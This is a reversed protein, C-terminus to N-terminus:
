DMHWIFPTMGNAAKYSTKFARELKRDWNTKNVKIIKKIINILIKNSSDSQGKCQPHYVISKNHIILHKVILKQM